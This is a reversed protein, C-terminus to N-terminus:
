ARRRATQCHEVIPALCALAREEEAASAGHAGYRVAEFLQTLELVPPRPVGLSGLLDGFERATMPGPREIGHEEALVASMRAYCALIVGRADDGALLAARAREALDGVQGLPDRPPPRPRLLWRAVLASALLLGGATLWLLLPPPDGLPARPAPPPSPLPLPAPAVTGSPALMVIGMVALSVAGLVALGRLLAAAVSRLRVGRLARGLAHLVLVSAGVALVLLVATSVPLLAPAPLGPASVAPGGTGNVIPLPLGPSLRLRPLGVGLLSTAALAAALLLITSRHARPPM